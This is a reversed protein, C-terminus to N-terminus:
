SDIQRPCRFDVATAFPYAGKPFFIKGPRCSAGMVGGIAMNGLPTLNRHVILSGHITLSGYITTDKWRLIPRDPDATAPNGASSVVMGLPSWLRNGVFVSGDVAVLGNVTLNDAEVTGYITGGSALSESLMTGNPERTGAQLMIKPEVHEMGFTYLPAESDPVESVVSVFLVGLLATLLLAISVAKM